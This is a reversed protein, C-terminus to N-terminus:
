PSDEESIVYENNRCELMMGKELKDFDEKYFDSTSFWLGTQQNVLEVYDDWKNKVLYEVGEM